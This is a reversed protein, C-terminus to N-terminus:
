NKEDTAKKADIRRNIWEYAKAGWMGIQWGAVAALVGQPARSTVLLIAGLIAFWIIIRRVTREM